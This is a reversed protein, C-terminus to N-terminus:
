SRPHLLAASPGDPEHRQERGRLGRRGPLRARALSRSDHARPLSAASALRQAALAPLRAAPHRRARVLARARHACIRRHADAHGRQRSRQPSRARGRRRRGGRVRALAGTIRAVEDLAATSTPDAVYRPDPRGHNYIREGPEWVHVFVPTVRRQLQLGSSRRSGQRSATRTCSSCAGSCATRTSTRASSRSSRTSRRRASRTCSARRRSTRRRGIAPRHPRLAGPRDDAHPEPALPRDDLRDGDARRELSQQLRM